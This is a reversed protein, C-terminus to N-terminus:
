APLGEEARRALVFEPGCSLKKIVTSKADVIRWFPTIQDLKKGAAMDELAAEAAIRVFMGSTMPCTGDAQWETALEARMEPVSKAKGKPIKAIYEAVLRPTPIFLKGGAPVGAWAKDMIEVAPKHNPQDLKQNWTKAM